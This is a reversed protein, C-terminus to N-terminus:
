DHTDEIKHLEIETIQHWRDNENPFDTKSINELSTFLLRYPHKLDMSFFGMLNGKLEHCREPGSKPPWFDSLSEAAILSNIRRQIIKTMEQGFNRILSKESSFKSKLRKNNIIVKM